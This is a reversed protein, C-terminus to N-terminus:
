KGILRPVWGTQDCDESGAPLLEQQVSLVRILSPPDCPQDSDSGLYKTKDRLPQYTFLDSHCGSIYNDKKEM